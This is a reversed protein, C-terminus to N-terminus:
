LPSIFPLVLVCKYTSVVFCHYLMSRICVRIHNTHDSCMGSVGLCLQAMVKTSSQPKKVVLLKKTNNPHCNITFLSCLYMRVCVRMLVCMSACGCVHNCSHVCINIYVCIYRCVSVDVCLYM